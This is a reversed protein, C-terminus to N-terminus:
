NDYTYKTHKVSPDSRLASFFPYGKEERVSNRLGNLAWAPTERKSLDIMPPMEAAEILHGLSSETQVGVGIRYKEAYDFANYTMDVAEQIFGPAFIIMRYDGNGGGRTDRTYETQRNGGGALGNGGRQANVFVIPLQSAAAYTFGEQKLTVGPGASSTMVRKGTAAAGNIMSAASTENEAQVFARGADRMRTSLYELIESQPTIPYGAYLEIGARFAAEAIAENGRLM